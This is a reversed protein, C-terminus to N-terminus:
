SLTLQALIRDKQRFQIKNDKTVEVTFTADLPGYHEACFRFWSQELLKRLKRNYIDANKASMDTSLFFVGNFAIKM